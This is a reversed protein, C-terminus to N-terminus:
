KKKRRFHLIAPVLLLSALTYATNAEPIAVADFNGSLPIAGVPFPDALTLAGGLTIPMMSDNGTLSIATFRLTLPTSFNYFENPNGPNSGSFFFTAQQNSGTSTKQFSWNAPISEPVFDFDNSYIFDIQDGIMPPASEFAVVSEGPQVDPGTEITLQNVQDPVFTVHLVQGALPSCAILLSSITVFHTM